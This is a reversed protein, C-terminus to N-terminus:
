QKKVMMAGIMTRIPAANEVKVQDPRKVDTFKSYRHVESSTREVSCFLRSIESMAAVTAVTIPMTMEHVVCRVVIGM